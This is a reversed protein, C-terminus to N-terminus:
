SFAPVIASRGRKEIGDFFMFAMGTLMTEICTLQTYITNHSSSFYSKENTITKSYHVIRLFTHFRM